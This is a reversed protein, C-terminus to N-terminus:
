AVSPDLTSVRREGDPGINHFKFPRGGFVTKGLDALIEDQAGFPAILEMLWLRDGGNWEEPQLKAGGDLLRQETAESVSAWFAVAAPAQPGQFIRYQELLLAPMCLWELDGIRLQRHVPSQTMLWVIEGLMQAVTKPAGPAPPTQLMAESM